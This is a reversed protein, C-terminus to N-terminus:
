KEEEDELERVAYIGDETTYLIRGDEKLVDNDEIDEINMDGFEYDWIEADYDWFANHAAAIDEISVMPILNNGNLHEALEELSEDYRLFNIVEYATLDALEIATYKMVDHTYYLYYSDNELVGDYVKEGDEAACQYIYKGIEEEIGEKMVWKVPTAGEYQLVKLGATYHFKANFPNCEAILLSTKETSNNTKM